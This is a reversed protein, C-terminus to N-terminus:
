KSKYNKHSFVNGFFVHDMGLPWSMITDITATMDFNNQQYVSDIEVVDKIPFIESRRSLGDRIYKDTYNSSSLAGFVPNNNEGSLTSYKKGFNSKTDSSGLANSVSLLSQM